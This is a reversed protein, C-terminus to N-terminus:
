RLLKYRYLSMLHLLYNVIERRNMKSKGSERDRFTIPVEKIGSHRGKVAIELGIKFGKPNLKKGQIVSRKLFFFGSMPDKLFTVPRAMLGAAKSVVKRRFPWNEIKGGSVHRSGFVMDFRRSGRTAKMYSLIEPIKEPPHSLDADMV